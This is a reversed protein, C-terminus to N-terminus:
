CASLYADRSFVAKGEYLAFKHKLFFLLSTYLRNLQVTNEQLQAAAKNYYIVM